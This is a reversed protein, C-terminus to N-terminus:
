YARFLLLRAPYAPLEQCEGAVLVLTAKTVLNIAREKSVCAACMFSRACLETKFRAHRSWTGEAARM